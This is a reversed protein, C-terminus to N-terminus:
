VVPVPVYSPLCSNASGPSQAVTLHGMESGWVQLIPGPTLGQM